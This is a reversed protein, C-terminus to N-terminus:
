TVGYPEVCQVVVLFTTKKHIKEGCMLFCMKGLANDTHHVVIFISNQPPYVCVHLFMCLFVM